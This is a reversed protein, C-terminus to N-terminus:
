IWEEPVEPEVFPTVVLEASSPREPEVDGAPTAPASALDLEARDRLECRTYTAARLLSRAHGPVGVAFLMQGDALELKVRVASAPRSLWGRPGRRRVRALQFGFREIEERSPDFEDAPLM